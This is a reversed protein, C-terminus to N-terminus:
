NDNIVKDRMKKYFDILNNIDTFYEYMIRKQSKDGNEESVRNIFSEVVKTMEKLYPLSGYLTLCTVSCGDLLDKVIPMEMNRKRMCAKCDEHLVHVEKIAKKKKKAM